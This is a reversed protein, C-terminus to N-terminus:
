NVEKNESDFEIYRDKVLDFKNIYINMNNSNYEGNYFISFYNNGSDVVWGEYDNLDIDEVNVIDLSDYDMYDKLNDVLTKFVERAEGLSLAIDNVENLIEDKIICNTSIIYVESKTKNEIEKVNIDLQKLFYRGDTSMRDEDWYLNDINEKLKEWLKKDIFM